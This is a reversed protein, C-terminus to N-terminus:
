RGRAVNRSAEDGGGKVFGQGQLETDFLGAFRSSNAGPRGLGFGHKGDRFLHMEYPAGARQWVLRLASAAKWTPDDKAVAIFLPTPGPRVARDMFPAYVAGAVAPREAM